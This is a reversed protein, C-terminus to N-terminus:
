LGERQQIPLDDPVEMTEGLEETLELLHVGYPKASPTLLIGTGEIRVDVPGEPFAMSDPMSITLMGDQRTVLGITM